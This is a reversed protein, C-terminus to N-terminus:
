GTRAFRTSHCIGPTPAHGGHLAPYGRLASEGHIAHRVDNSLTQYPKKVPM